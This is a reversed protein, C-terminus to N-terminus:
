MAKNAKSDIMKFFMITSGNAPVKLEPLRECAATKWQRTCYFIRYTPIGTSNYVKGRM